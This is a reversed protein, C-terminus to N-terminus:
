PAPPAILGELRTRMAPISNRLDAVAQDFTTYMNPTPDSHAAEQIVAAYRDIAAQMAGLAFPGDLM